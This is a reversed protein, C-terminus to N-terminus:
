RSLASSINVSVVNIDSSLLDELGNEKLIAHIDWTYANKNECATVLVKGDASLTAFRLIDEHQLPPGVPLSTDLNWLYGTSDISASAFLRNNRALSIAYVLNTHGELVAVQQWTATNFIRILGYSGSFLKNGDSSWAL